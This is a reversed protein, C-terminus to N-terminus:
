YNDMAKVIYHTRFTIQILKSQQLHVPLCVSIIHTHTHLQDVNNSDCSTSVFYWIMDYWIMHNCIHRILSHSLGIYPIYDQLELRSLSLSFTFQLLYIIIVYQVPLIDPLMVSLM